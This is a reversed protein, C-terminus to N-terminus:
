RQDALHLEFQEVAEALEAPDSPLLSPHWPPACVACYDVCGLTVIAVREQCCDCVVVVSDFPSAM